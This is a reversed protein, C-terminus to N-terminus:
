LLVEMKKNMLMLHFDRLVLKCALMSVVRVRLRQRGTLHLFTKKKEAVPLFNMARSHEMVIKVETPRSAGLLRKSADPCRKPAAGLHGFIVVSATQGPQQEQDM